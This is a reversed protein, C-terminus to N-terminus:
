DLKDQVLISTISVTSSIQNICIVHRTGIQILAKIALIIILLLAQIMPFDRELTLIWSATLIKIATSITFNSFKKPLTYQTKPDRQLLIFKLIKLISFAIVSLPM